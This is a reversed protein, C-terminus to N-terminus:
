REGFAQYDRAIRIRQEPRLSARCHIGLERVLVSAIRERDILVDLLGARAAKSRSPGSRM